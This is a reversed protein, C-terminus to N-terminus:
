ESNFEINNLKTSYYVYILCFESFNTEHTIKEFAWLLEVSALRKPVFSYWLKESKYPKAKYSDYLYPLYFVWSIFLLVNTALKTEYKLAIILLFYSIYNHKQTYM